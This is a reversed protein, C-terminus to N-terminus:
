LPVATRKWSRCASTMTACADQLLALWYYHIPLLCPGRLPMSTSTNTTFAATEPTTITVPVTIALLSLGERPPQTAAKGVM